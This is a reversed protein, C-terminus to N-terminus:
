IVGTPEVNRSYEHCRRKPADKRRKPDAKTSECVVVVALSFTYRALHVCGTCDQGRRELVLAPDGYEWSRTM